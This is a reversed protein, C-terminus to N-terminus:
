LAMDGFGSELDRAITVGTVYNHNNGGIIGGCQPCRATEMPMGCEGITFPHGNECRYWHGTGSFERAMAAVVKKMEENTVPSYFSNERLMREVEMIESIMSRAKSGDTCLTRAQILREYAEARLSKSFEHESNQVDAVNTHKGCKSLEVYRAEAKPSVWKKELAAFQAWFILAEVQQLHHSGDEASQYLEECDKRNNAFNVTTATDVPIDESSRAKLVDSLVLVDCRLLLATVLSSSRTILIVDDDFEFGSQTHKQNHAYRILEQVRKFPQEEKCVLGKLARIDRRLAILEGYRRRSMTQKVLQLQKDRSGILQLDKDATIATEANDSLTIQVKGFTEYMLIYQKNSWTVFKLTSQILLARRIVRGYRSLDRLSGRCDPCVIRAKDIELSNIPVKLCIPNGTNGDLVYDENLGIHGDMTGITYFHGCAPFVCPEEDLDIDRYRTMMILDVVRNKVDESGCEQCFSDQPCPAGDISPCQHGCIVKECCRLSCPVWDCPAACPM